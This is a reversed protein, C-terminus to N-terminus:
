KRREQQVRNNYANVIRSVYNITERYPPVGGYAAVAGPGANYAALALDLRQFRSLQEALYQAGGAVNEDPDFSNRVGLMSATGPMLQMLGAAGVRSVATPRFNSEQRIVEELLIPDLNRKKAERVVIPSLDLRQDGAGIWRPDLEKKPSAAYSVTGPIELPVNRPKPKPKIAPPPTVNYITGGGGTRMIRYYEAAGANSYSNVAQGSVTAAGVRYLSPDASASGALLGTWLLVSLGMGLCNKM